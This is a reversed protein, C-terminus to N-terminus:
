PAFFASVDAELVDSLRALTMLTLNFRGQEYKQYQRLIVRMEEAAEAQTLGLEVRRRKINTGVRQAIRQFHLRTVCHAYRYLSIKPVGIFHRLLARRRGPTVQGDGACYGTFSAVKGGRSGVRGGDVIGPVAAARDSPSKWM